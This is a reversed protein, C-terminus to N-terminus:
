ARFESPDIELEKIKQQLAQRKMGIAPATRSINGAHRSLAERIYATEFARVAGAKAEQFTTDTAIHPSPDAVAIAGTSGVEDQLLDFTLESGESLIVAREITHMLQRVNGPWTHGMLAKMAEPTAATVHKGHRENFQELFHATLDPIDEQRQRLPPLTIDVVQLRYYLDERFRGASVEEPLHKNTATVIRVDVTIPQTGGLREFTREQLVRLLKAQTELGMDGIEDLFLTGGDALEFKGPKRAAASTFAGKEHGFL